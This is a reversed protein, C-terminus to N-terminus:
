TARLATIMISVLGLTLVVAQGSNLTAALRDTETM